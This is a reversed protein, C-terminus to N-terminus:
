EFSKVPSSISLTPKITIMLFIIFKILRLTTNEMKSKFQTYVFPLMEMLLNIFLPKQQVNSVSILHSHLVHFGRILYYNLVNVIKM